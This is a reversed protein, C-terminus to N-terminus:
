TRLQVKGKLLTENSTFHPHIETYGHGKNPNKGQGAGIRLYVLM